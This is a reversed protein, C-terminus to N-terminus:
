HKASVWTVSTQTGRMKNETSSPLLQSRKKGLYRLCDRDQVIELTCDGFVKFDM